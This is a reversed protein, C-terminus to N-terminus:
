HMCHKIPQRVGGHRWRRVAYAGQERRRPHTLAMMLERNARSGGEEPCTLAMMLGSLATTSLDLRSFSFWFMM